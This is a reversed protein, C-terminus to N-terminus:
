PRAAMEALIAECMAAAVTEPAKRGPLGPARLLRLGTPLEIGTAVGGPFSAVDLLLAGPPLTRLNAADFMPAPITNIVIRTAALDDLRASAYHRAIEAQEAPDASFVGVRADLAALLRAVTKGVKGFGAILVRTGALTFDIHNLLTQLVGEATPVLNKDYLTANRTLDIHRCPVAFSAPITGSFLTAHPSLADLFAAIAIPCDGLPAHLHRGDETFPIPGVVWPFDGIDPTEGAAAPFEGLAISRVTLGADALAAALYANRQDGGIVLLNM